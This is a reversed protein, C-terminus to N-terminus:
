GSMRPRLGARRSSSHQRSAVPISSPSKGGGPTQTFDCALPWQVEGSRVRAVDDLRAIPSAKPRQTNPTSWEALARTTSKVSM